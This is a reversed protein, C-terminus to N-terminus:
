LNLNSTEKLELVHFRTSIAKVLDWVCMTQNTQHYHLANIYQILSGDYWKSSMSRCQGNLPCQTRVRCNCSKLEKSM